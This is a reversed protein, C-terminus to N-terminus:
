PFEDVFIGIADCVQQCKADVEPDGVLPIIQLIESLGIKMPDMEAMAEAESDLYRTHFMWGYVGCTIAFPAHNTERELTIRAGLSNEEDTLIVGNEAGRQGITAGNNFPGWPM